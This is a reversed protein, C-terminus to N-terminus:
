EANWKDQSKWQKDHDDEENNYVRKLLQLRHACRLACEISKKEFPADDCFNECSSNWKKKSSRSDKQRQQTWENSM